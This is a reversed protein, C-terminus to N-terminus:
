ICKSFLYFFLGEELTKNRLNVIIVIDAKWYSSIFSKPCVLDTQVQPVSVVCVVLGQSWQIFYQKTLPNM